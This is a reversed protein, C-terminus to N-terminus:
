DRDAFAKLCVNVYAHPNTANDCTIEGSAATACIEKWDSGDSSIYSQEHLGIARSSENAKPWEMAIPFEYGPTTVKAVISFLPGELEVTDFKITHYGPVAMTGTITRALHGSAPQGKTVQDYIYIEYATDPELAYFGVAKLKSAKPNALFVNSMWGTPNGFGRSETHGLADYQYVWDFTANEAVKFQYGVGDGGLNRDSYSVYFYGEDGWSKGWSNRVIFAGDEPPPTKFNEKPYNDNWGVICIDHDTSLSDACYFAHTTENYCNDVDMAIDVDVAGGTMVAQKISDHDWPIWQVHRVQYSKGPTARNNPFSESLNLYPYSFQSEPVLSSWRTLIATMKDGNGGECPVSDFGSFENIAGESFDVNLEPMLSSEASAVAAFIWCSGCSAQNRVPTLRNKKRLDYSAPLSEGTLSLRVGKLYSHDVTSPIHGLWRGDGSQPLKGEARTDVYNKFAPNPPASKSESEALAMTSASLVFLIGVVAALMHSFNFFSM